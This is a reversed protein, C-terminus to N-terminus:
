FGAFRVTGIAKGLEPPGGGRGPDHRLCAILRRSFLEPGDRLLQRAHRELSGAERGLFAIRARTEAPSPVVNDAKFAHRGSAEQMRPRYTTELRNSRLGSATNMVM